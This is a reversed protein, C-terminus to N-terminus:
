LSLNGIGANTWNKTQKLMIYIFRKIALKMKPLKHWYKTTVLQIQGRSNPGRRFIFAFSSFTMNFRKRCWFTWFFNVENKGQLITILWFSHKWFRYVTCKNALMLIRTFVDKQRSIYHTSIKQMKTNRPFADPNWQLDM